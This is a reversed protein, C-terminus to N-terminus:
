WYIIDGTFLINTQMFFKKDAFRNKFHGIDIIPLISLIPASLRDVGLRCACAVIVAQVICCKDGLEKALTTAMAYWSLGSLVNHSQPQICLATFCLAKSTGAPGKSVQCRWPCAPFGWRVLYLCPRQFGQVDMLELASFCFHPKCSWFFFIDGRM